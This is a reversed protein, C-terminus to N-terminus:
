KIRDLEIICVKIMDEDSWKKIAILECVQKDDDYVIGNLGDLLSKCLNDVDKHPAELKSSKPRKFHFEIHAGLLGSLPSRHWFSKAMWSIEDEFTKTKKPTYAFGRKTFRPREKVQPKIKFILWHSM